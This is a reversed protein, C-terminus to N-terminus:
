NLCSKVREDFLKVAFNYVEIDCWLIKELKALGEKTEPSRPKSKTKRSKEGHWNLNKVHPYTSALLKITEGYKETLGVFEFKMELNFKALNVSARLDKKTCDEESGQGVCRCIPDFGCFFGTILNFGGIQGDFCRNETLFLCESVTYKDMPRGRKKDFGYYYSSLTRSVPERIISFYSINLFDIKLRSAMLSSNLNPYRVHDDWVLIKGNHKFIAWNKSKYKLFYKSIRHEWSVDKGRDFFRGPYGINYTSEGTLVNKSRKLINQM